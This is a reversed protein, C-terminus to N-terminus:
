FLKCASKIMIEDIMSKVTSPHLNKELEPFTSCLQSLIDTPIKDVSYYKVFYSMKHYKQQLNILAYNWMEFTKLNDPVYKIADENQKVAEECIQKTKFNYEVHSLCLGNKKVAILCLQEYHDMKEKDKDTLQQDIKYKNFGLPHICRLNYPELTVAEIEIIPNDYRIQMPIDFITFSANRISFLAIDFSVVSRPIHRIARVSSLIALICLDYTILSKDVYRIANGCKKIARFCINNEQFQKTDNNFGIEQIHKPVSELMMPDINVVIDYLEPHDNLIYDPCAFINLTNRKVAALFVEFTLEDTPVYDLFLGRAVRKPWNPKHINPM